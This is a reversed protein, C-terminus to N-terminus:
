VGTPQLFFYKAQKTTRLKLLPIIRVVYRLRLEAKTQKNRPTTFFLVYTRKQITFLKLLWTKNFLHHFDTHETSEAM